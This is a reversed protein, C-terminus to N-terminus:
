KGLEKSRETGAVVAKIVTSRFAGEELADIGAITTGAPSCVMACLDSPSKQSQKVLEVSGEITGLALKLAVDRTLGAKVGGRTLGEIFEFVYAPASGSLGTVADMLNEPVRCTVGIFGFIKEATELTKESVGDTALGVSGKGVTLPLNPMVRLVQNKNSLVETLASRTVGAMISIFTKTAKITKIAAKWEPAVTKFIQPKVCLFTIDSKKVGESFSKVRICGLASVEAAAKDSPDFFFINKPETGANLLGRLIAGGMNGTGAFFIKESM